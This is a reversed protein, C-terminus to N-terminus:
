LFAGHGAGGPGAHAGHLHPLPVSPATTGHGRGGRGPCQGADAGAGPRGGLFCIRAQGRCGGVGAEGAGRGPGPREPQPAVHASPRRRRQPGPLVGAHRRVAGPPPLSPGRPRAPRLSPRSPASVGRPRPHPQRLVPPPTPSRRRRPLQPAAAHSRGSETNNIAAPQGPLSEQAGSSAAVADSPRRPRTGPCLPRSVRTLRHRPSLPTCPHHTFPLADPIPAARAPADTGPSHLRAQQGTSLISRSRSRAQLRPLGGSGGSSAPSTEATPGARSADRRAQSPSCDPMCGPQGHSARPGARLTCARVAARPVLSSGTESFETSAHMSRAVGPRSRPAHLSEASRHHGQLTETSRFHSGQSGAARHLCFILRCRPSRALPPSHCTRVTTVASTPRRRRAAGGSRDWPVGRGTFRAPLTVSIVAGSLLQFEKNGTGVMRECARRPGPM